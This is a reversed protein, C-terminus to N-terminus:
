RRTDIRKYHQDLRRHPRPIHSSQTHTRPSCGPRAGGKGHARDPAGRRESEHSPVPCTRNHHRPPKRCAAYLRPQLTPTLLRGTCWAVVCGPGTWPRDSLPALARRPRCLANAPASCVLIYINREAASSDLPRLAAHALGPGARAHGTPWGRLCYTM